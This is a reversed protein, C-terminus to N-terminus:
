SQLIGIIDAGVRKSHLMSMHGLDDYIIERSCMIRAQGAGPVLADARSWIVTVECHTPLEANALRQVLVSHRQLEKRPRGVGIASMETGAHPAGITILHHVKADGGLMSIYYRAVVGGMSHGIIDVSTAGTQQCVKAVFAALQRAADAVKGLSWYEFGIVPGVNAAALRRALPVFNARNMAFGHVVIVPRLGAIHAGPLPFFGRWRGAALSLASSWERAVSRLAGVPLRGHKRLRAVAVAAHPVVPYGGALMLTSAAAAVVGRALLQSPRHRPQVPQSRIM